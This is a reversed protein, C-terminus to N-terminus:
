DGIVEAPIEANLAIQRSVVFGVPENVSETGFGIREIGFIPNIVKQDAYLDFVVPFGCAELRENMSQEAHHAVAKRSHISRVVGAAIIGESTFYRAEGHFEAAANIQAHM